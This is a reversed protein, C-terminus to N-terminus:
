SLAEVLGEFFPRGDDGGLEADALREPHPMLGLVTKSENFVGAINSQSGNPNAEPTVSGDSACYRFAIQSQDELRKRGDEDITYCGDHHAMPIRLAQGEEYRSTFLSQSTEVRITVDRCIYRLSRNRM